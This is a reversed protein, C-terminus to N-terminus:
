LGMNKREVRIKIWRSWGYSQADMEVFTKAMDIVKDVFAAPADNPYMVSIVITDPANATFDLSSIKEGELQSKFRSELDLALWELRTPTYPEMLPSANKQTSCLMAMAGAFFSASLAVVRKM